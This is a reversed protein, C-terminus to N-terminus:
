DGGSYVEHATEDARIEWLVGVRGGAERGFRAQALKSWIGEVSSGDSGIMTFRYSFNSGLQDASVVIDDGSFALRPQRESQGAIVMPSGANDLVDGQFYLEGNDRRWVLDSKGDNDFDDVAIIERGDAVVQGADVFATGNSLLM